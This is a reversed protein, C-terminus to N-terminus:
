GSAWLRRYGFVPALGRLEEGATPFEVRYSAGGATRDESFWVSDPVLTTPLYGDGKIKLPFYALNGQADHARVTITASGGKNLALESPFVEVISPATNWFCIPDETCGCHQIASFTMM